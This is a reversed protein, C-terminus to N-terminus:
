KLVYAKLLEFTNIIGKIHTREMGHSAAVGSGILGGAIKGSEDM